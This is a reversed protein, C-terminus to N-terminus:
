PTVGLDDKTGLVGVETALDVDLVVAVEWRLM